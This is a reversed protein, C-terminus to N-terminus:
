PVGHRACPYRFIKDTGKLSSLLHRPVNSWGVSIGRAARRRGSEMPLRGRRKWRFKCKWRARARYVARRSTLSVTELRTLSAAGAVKYRSTNIRRPLFSGHANRDNGSAAAISDHSVSVPFRTDTFRSLFRCVESRETSAIENHFIERPFIGLTLYIYTSTLNRTENERRTIWNVTTVFLLM